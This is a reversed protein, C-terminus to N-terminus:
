IEESGYVECGNWEKGKWQQPCRYLAGKSTKDKQHGM